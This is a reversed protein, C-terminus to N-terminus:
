FKDEDAVIWEAFLKSAGNENFTKKNEEVNM